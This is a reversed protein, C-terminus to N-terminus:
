RGADLGAAQLQRRLKDLCRARTPGISGLTTGLQAAIESYAPVDPRYFLMVLLDRCREDLASLATRVLHRQELELLVEDPLLAVDPVDRSQDTSEPERQQRQRMRRAERSATTVLWARIRDPREIKDLQEVFVAFVRQFVEGALDEDLGARIAVSYVLRRYRNVLAAWAEEDAGRCAGVLAEDSASHFHNAALGVGLARGGSLLVLPTV